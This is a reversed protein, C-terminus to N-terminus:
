SFAGTEDVLLSFYLVGSTTLKALWSGGALRGHADARWVNDSVILTPRESGTVM